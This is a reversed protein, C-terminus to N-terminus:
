EGQDDQLDRYPKTPIPQMLSPFFSPANVSDKLFSPNDLTNPTIIGPCPTCITIHTIESEAAFAGPACIHTLTSLIVIGSGGDGGTGGAGVGGGGGGGTNVDGDGGGIASFLVPM